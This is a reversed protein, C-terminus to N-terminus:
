ELSFFLGKWSASADEYSLGFADSFSLENLCSGLVADLTYNNILYEIFFIAQIDTLENGDNQKIWNYWEYIRKTAPANEVGNASYSSQVKAM